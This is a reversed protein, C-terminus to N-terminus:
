GIKFNTNGMSYLYQKFVFNVKVHSFLWGIPQNTATVTQVQKLDFYNGYMTMNQIFNLSSISDTGKPFM